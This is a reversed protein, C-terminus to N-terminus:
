KDPCQSQDDPNIEFIIEGRRIVVSVLTPYVHLLAVPEIFGDTLVRREIRAMGMEMGMIVHVYM